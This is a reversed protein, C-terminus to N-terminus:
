LMEPPATAVARRPDLRVFLATVFAPDPRAQVPCFWHNSAGFKACKVADKETMLVPGRSWSAVDEPSFPHHDPYPREEILIGCSRLLAFFRGPNGIGAVATVRQGSFDSLPRVQMQDRLNAVPGPVLDFRYGAGVGGNHIVLDVTALRSAPERLPGAPLCHGNGLGREGDIVAIELDRAFRYHQLGDDCLILNCAHRKIALAASAVRNAGAIVPCVGRRALLLSEDGVLGPDDGPGVLCSRRGVRGGYGRTLIAPRYGRTVALEALRLVLPTKGTGGVTLNGVVLVPCPSRSAKLVGGRYLARRLVAVGCYLWALPLLALAAPHRRGYWIANPDM